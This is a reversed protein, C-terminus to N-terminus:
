SGSPCRLERFARRQKSARVTSIRGGFELTLRVAKEAHGVEANPFGFIAVLGEGDAAEIYAGAKLFLDTARRIFKETTQVFAAPEAEEALDFKNAIDCVVVTVECSRAETDLPMEGEIVQQMQESSLRGAFFTRALNARSHTMIAVTRGAAVFALAVALISPLPQFLVHYLACVWALGIIEILLAGAVWVMRTRHMGLSTLAAMGVALVVILLYQWFEGAPHSISNFHSILGAIPQEIRVLVGLGHLLAVLVAVLIGIILIVVVPRKM